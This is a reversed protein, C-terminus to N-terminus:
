REPGVSDDLLARDTRESSAEGPEGPGGALADSVTQGGRPAPDAQPHELCELSRTYAELLGCFGAIFTCSIVM